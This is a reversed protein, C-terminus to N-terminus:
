GTVHSFLPYSAVVLMSASAMVMVASEFGVGPVIRGIPTIDVFYGAGSGPRDACAAQIV